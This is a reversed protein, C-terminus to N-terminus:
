WARTACSSTRTAARVEADLLGAHYPLAAIGKRASGTRPEEVKKRSPCYVIGADGEHEDRIFRLLQRRADDKEVIAYRINPRDFSSIFVQATAAAAARHHRRADARRRHRHARHAAHRCLARAAGLRPRSLGEPPFRPGVPQRLAGRRHRVPQAARARAAFRAPRPFAAHDRARPAVYLLVLRSSMMEREIRQADASRSRPTSSPPMCAPGHARRGPRADARDAPERRHWATIAGTGCSRLYGLLVPEGGGTPM